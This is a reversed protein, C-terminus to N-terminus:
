RKELSWQGAASLLLLEKELQSTVQLTSPDAGNLSRIRILGKWIPPKPDPNSFFPHFVNKWKRRFINKFIFVIFRM